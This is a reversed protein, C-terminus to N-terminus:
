STSESWDTRECCGPSKPLHANLPTEECLGFCGRVLLLELMKARTSVEGPYGLALDVECGTGFRKHNRYCACVLRCGWVQARISGQRSHKM